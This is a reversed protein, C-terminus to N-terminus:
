LLAESKNNSLDLDQKVLDSAEATIDSEKQLETSEPKPIELNRSLSKPENSKTSKQNSLLWAFSIASIVVISIYVNKVPM